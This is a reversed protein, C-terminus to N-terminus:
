CNIKCKQSLEGEPEHVSPKECKQKRITAALKAHNVSPKSLAKCLAEWTCHKGSHLWKLLMCRFKAEIDGREKDIVNLDGTSCRLGLGINYWQARADWAEDQIDGLDDETLEM